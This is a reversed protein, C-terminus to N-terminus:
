AFPSHVVLGAGVAATALPKDITALPLRLGQCLFFYSADYATLEENLAVEALRGPSILDMAPVTRIEFAAIVADFESLQGVDIYGRKAKKWTISALEWLILDPALLSTQGGLIDRAFRSHEEEFVAAAILSADVVLM